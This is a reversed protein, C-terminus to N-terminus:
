AFPHFSSPRRIQLELHFFPPSDIVNTINSRRLCINLLLRVFLSIVVSCTGGRCVSGDLGHSFIGANLRGSYFHFSPIFCYEQSRARRWRWWGFDTQRNLSFISRIWWLRGIQDKGDRIQTRGQYTHAYCVRMTYKRNHKYTCLWCILWGRRQSVYNPGPLWADLRPFLLSFPAGSRSRWTFQM